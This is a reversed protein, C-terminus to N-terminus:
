LWIGKLKDEVIKKELYFPLSKYNPYILCIICRIFYCYYSTEMSLKFIQVILFIHFDNLSIFPVLAIDLVLTTWTWKKKNLETQFSISFLKYTVVLLCLVGYKYGGSWQWTILISLNGSVSPRGHSLPLKFLLRIQYTVAAQWNLQNQM